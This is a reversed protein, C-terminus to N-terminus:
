RKATDLLMRVARLFTHLPFPKPLHALVRAPVGPLTAAPPDPHLSLIRLLPHRALLGNLYAAAKAGGLPLVVLEPVTQATAAVAATLGGAERVRYGQAALLGQLMRRLAGDPEILLIREQGRTAALPTGAAPALSEETEATEPLWIEFTAGRGPASEVEVSGGAATFYQRMNALGLGTGHPKTTFFPEFVRTRTTADMGVGTDAVILAVGARGERTKNVTRITLTGGDPMADRSNLSFNLLARQVQTPDTRVNGLGTALRLELTIDDGLVRRLIDAVERVLVNFNVVRPAIERRRSFELLQRAIDIARQGARHVEQLNRKAEAPDDLHNIAVECMGNIVALLNNLDHAMGGALQGVTDLQQSHALAEQLRHQDTLDRYLGLMWNGEALPAFRWEGFFASGDRRHLWGQGRLGTRAFDPHEQQLLGPETRAGFFLRTNRGALEAPAHGTFTCWAPNAAIIDAGGQHWRPAALVIPDPWAAVLDRLLKPPASAKKPTASRAM